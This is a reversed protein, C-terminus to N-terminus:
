PGLNSPAAAQAELGPIRYATWGHEEAALQCGYCYYKNAMETGRPGRVMATLRAGSASVLPLIARGATPAPSRSRYLTPQESAM